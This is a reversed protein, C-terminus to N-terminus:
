DESIHVISTDGQGGGGGGGLKREVAWHVPGRGGEGHRWNSQFLIVM